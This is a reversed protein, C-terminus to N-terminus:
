WSQSSYATMSWEYYALALRRHRQHWVGESPQSAFLRVTIALPEEVIVSYAGTGLGVLPNSLTIYILDASQFYRVTTIQKANEAGRGTDFLVEYRM